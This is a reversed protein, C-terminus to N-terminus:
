IYIRPIHEPIRTVIEYNITNIKRALEEATIEAKGQKGIIVVEEGVKAKQNNVKSIDIITMNMCVRGVVPCYLGDILVEGFGEREWNPDFMKQPASLGRDLGEFYGVPIIGVKMARKVRYTCGYGIYGAKVEKIQVLQTKYSLVPRLFPKRTDPDAEEWFSKKNEKSSWLGYCSIGCRVMDFHSEALLMAAGSAAIHKLPIDINNNKLLKIAKGFENFQGATYDMNNEEVSALHSYIGEVKINKMKSLAKYASILSEPKIGMRNIGTDIKIHITLKEHLKSQILDAIYEMSIIPIVINKQAAEKLREVPVYGLVMIPKIIKAARLELAEDISNVGLWDAGNQVAEKAFKVMGHGYANSKVVVMFRTRKRLLSQLNKLNYKIAKTDCEVWSLPKNM